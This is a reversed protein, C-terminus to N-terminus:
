QRTHSDGSSAARLRQTFICSTHIQAVDVCIVMQGRPHTDYYTHTKTHTRASRREHTRPALAAVALSFSAHRGAADGCTQKALEGGEHFTSPRGGGAAESRGMPLSHRGLTQRLGQEPRGGADRQGLLRRRGLAKTGVVWRRQTSERPPDRLNDLRSIKCFVGAAFGAAIRQYMDNLREHFVPGPDQRGQGEDPFNLLAGEAIVGEIRPRNSEPLELFVEDGSPKAGDRIPGKGQGGQVVGITLRRVQQKLDEAQNRPQRQVHLDGGFQSETRGRRAEECSAGRRNAAQLLREGVETGVAVKVDLRRSREAQLEGFTARRRDMVNIAERHLDRRVNLDRPCKNQLRPPGVLHAEGLEAGLAEEHLIEKRFVLTRVSTRHHLLLHKRRDLAIRARGRRGGRAAGDCERRWGRQVRRRQLLRHCSRPLFSRVLRLLGQGLKPRALQQRGLDGQLNLPGRSQAEAPRHHVM